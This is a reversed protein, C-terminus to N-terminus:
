DNSAGGLNIVAKGNKHLEEMFSEPIKTVKRKPKPPPPATYNPQPIAAFRPEFDYQEEKTQMHEAKRMGREYGKNYAKSKEIERYRAYVANTAMGAAFCLFCVFTNM